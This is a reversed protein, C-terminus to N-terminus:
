KQSLKRILTKIARRRKTVCEPTIAQKLCEFSMSSHVYQKCIEETICILYMGCDYGNTQQPSPATILKFEGLKLSSLCRSLKTFVNHAEKQNFDNSSDFSYCKKEPFNFVLLSWHFGGANSECNDNVPLFVLRKSGLHLSEILACMDKEELFKILQTTDPNVFLLESSYNPYEDNELYEYMFGILNDNLWCHEDLLKLDDLRILSNHYDLVISNDM